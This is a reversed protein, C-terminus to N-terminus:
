KAAGDASHDLYCLSSSATPLHIRTSTSLAPYPGCSLWHAPFFLPGAAEKVRRCNVGKGHRQDLACCFM